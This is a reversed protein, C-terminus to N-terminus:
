GYPAVAAGRRGLSCFALAVMGAAAAQEVWEGLRGVHNCHFIGAAALGQARAKEVACDMALRAAVQGFGRRADVSAMVATERAVVPEAAPLIDGAAISNLYQRVRVVGHSEHGALDSLVLSQAVTRANPESAGAALFIRAALDALADPHLIPM